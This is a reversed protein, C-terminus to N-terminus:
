LFVPALDCYLRYSDILGAGDIRWISVARITITRGYIGHYDVSLEAITDSGETWENLVTHQLGKVAAFFGKLRAAIVAPGILPDGNPFQLRGQEAFLRSFGAADRADILAIVTKTFERSM